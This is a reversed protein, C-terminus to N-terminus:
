LEISKATMVLFITGNSGPLNLTGVLTPTNEPIGIRNLALGIAEYNTNQTVKGSEDRISSTVVPVRAGFRFHEAHFGRKGNPLPSLKIKGLSWEMFSQDSRMDSQKGFLNSVSKYEFSGLNAVRGLFTAALRYHTFPMSSKMQRSVATLESPLDTRQGDENSGVVLHVTVEFNPEDQGYATMAAAAMVCLVLSRVAVKMYRM